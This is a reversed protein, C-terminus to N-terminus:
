KVAIIYKMPFGFKKVSLDKKLRFSQKILYPRIDTPHCGQALSPFIKFFRFWANEGLTSPFDMYISFFLGQNNLVRKIEKIIKDFDSEQCFDFFCNAFVGDFFANGFPIRFFPITCTKLNEIGQKQSYRQMDFCLNTSSEYFFVM